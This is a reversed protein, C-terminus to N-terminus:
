LKPLPRDPVRRAQAEKKRRKKVTEDALLLQAKRKEAPAAMALRAEADASEVWEWGMPQSLEREAFDAWPTGPHQDVIRKLYLQAKAAKKKIEPVANAVSGPKLIWQNNGKKTFPKPNIKMEALVMNYGLMRARIAAARGMALDFAAQWRPETIKDRDKEGKELNALMESVYQDTVAIPQQAKTIAERLENDNKAPFELDPQPIKDLQMRSATDVLMQKARNKKLEREQVAMTRYDPQYNRMVNPDYRKGNGEEAIMYVGGTESCLRTLAYPGYGASMRELDNGDTGVFPIRLMDAYVSEPGQDVPVDKQVGDPFTWTHYGKEKGFPSANGVVFCRTGQRSLLTIADELHQPADDGKEDTVVIMIVKRGSNMAYQQFKKSVLAVGGFTYEHGSEDNKIGRIKPLVEQIGDVPEPTLIETKEGFTAVVTKLHKSAAGDLADLQKYVNEFRDSILQRRAQLSLSADFMWIVLMKREKVSQLLEYTLRDIAGETGGTNETAAAGIKNVKGVLEDQAPLEVSDAVVIEVPSLQEEVQQEFATQASIGAVLASASGTGSSSVGAVNLDSDTGIKETEVAESVVPEQEELETMDTTLASEFVEAPQSYVGLSLILLLVVHVGLSIVWAPAAGFRDLLKLLSHSGDAWDAKTGEPIIRQSAVTAM